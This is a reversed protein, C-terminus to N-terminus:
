ADGNCNIDLDILAFNQFEITPIVYNFNTLTLMESYHM